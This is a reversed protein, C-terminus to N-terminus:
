PCLCGGPRRCGVARDSAFNNIHVHLLHAVEFFVFAFEFALDNEEACHTGGRIDSLGEKAAVGIRLQLLHFGIVRAAAAEGETEAAAHALAVKVQEQRSM